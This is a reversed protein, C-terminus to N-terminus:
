PAILHAPAAVHPSPAAAGEHNLRSFRCPCTLPKPFTEPIRGPFSMPSDARFPGKSLHRFHRSSATRMSLIEILVAEDRALSQKPECTRTTSARRRPPGTRARPTQGPSTPGTRPRAATPPPTSVSSSAPSCRGSSPPKSPPWTRGPATPRRTPSAGSARERAFPGRPAPVGAPVEPGRRLVPGEETRLPLPHVDADLVVALGAREDPAAPTFRPETSADRDPQEQPRVPLSPVTHEGLREPRLQLRIGDGHDM